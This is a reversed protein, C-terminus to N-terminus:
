TGHVLDQFQQEDLITVGLEEAKKRKSGAKEGAILFDTKQSVSGSVKAGAQVLLQKAEARGMTQLTGTLVVTKGTFPTDESQKTEGAKMNLGANKLLTLIRQNSEDAFWQQISDATREGIGHITLLDDKTASAIADVDSFHRELLRASEEGIFRIGLGFLVRYMPQTKSQEIAEVLKEVKKQGWRELSALEDTKNPLEYIDGISHLLGSEVLQYVNKEGLSEIDMAPKSAFHVIRRKAQWPCLPSECYYAAEGEYQHLQEKRDCPCLKPFEFEQANEQRKGLVVTSIKPIVEGGKEVVVTDGVRLDLERVFDANHLTARQVTSGSVVVADLEAVPTVVGTRGVQFTIDRLTTEVKEAEYKFAIAWRPFRAVSGLREQLRLDDVKLVIGDIMYPLSPRKKDWAQMYEIVDDISGTTAYEGANQFGLQRLLELCVTHTPVDVDSTELSYPAFTLNRQAVLKSDLQKLTGSTLNRPNAYLELDQEAREANIRDFEAYTMFVEGRIEVNRIEGGEWTTNRLKLPVNSITRVNATINDGVEGNGRTAGIALVGDRYTLSVALGDYKLDAAYRVDDTRLYERVREDFERVEDLSYTNQLSLMRQAHEVSEFQQLPEGGVRQTPSDPRKAWPYKRELEFLEELLLDYARDSIEPASLSYYRHDHYNISAILEAVRQQIHSDKEMKKAM